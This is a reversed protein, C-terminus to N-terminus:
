FGGHEAHLRSRVENLTYEKVIAGDKFVVELMNEGQISTPTLEDEYTIKGDEQHYVRCMGRQSKKFKGTDTKPNKFIEFGVGDIEGYTAKVAIGFTDRTFPSLQMPNNFGHVAKFTDFSELCQMSFSGVGLAVNNCAFGAEILRKYIETCRQLTISDGYIAKVHPDLVKYGKSNVTGGFTNWLHFVTETVIEVPDGSDGRALLCGNHALVEAKLQPLINDVLNWYDYSDSVMSFSYNPYIKTLLRRVFSVEDGDIAYNSCMVSHETSISGYAVPEKTCDCNYMKELFPITPVTATNLFSLCFAASSKIASQLSEQGRFSFDGLAKNRPINDDVSIAYAQNVIERYWYGVNASIMPHWLEASMVSEITNVLWAFNPNTNSIEIMPVKIPVLTGEPIARIELPLYGLDYLEVIKGIDYAGSGLTNDLVRCYESIVEKRPRNFFNENFYEILYTKIFAQLGFMVLEDQGDIRSMRPTFYSVLKTLGAPYQEHHTTKYFDLLLLPNTNM